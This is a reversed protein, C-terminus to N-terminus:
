RMVGHGGLSSRPRKGESLWHPVRPSKHLPLQELTVPLLVAVNRKGPNLAVAVILVVSILFYVLLLDLLPVRFVSTLM